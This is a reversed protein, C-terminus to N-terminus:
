TLGLQYPAGLGAMLAPGDVGAFTYAGAGAFADITGSTDVIRVREGSFGGVGYLILSTIGSETVYVNGQPDVAVGNPATITADVAPGGDGSHTPSGNGIFP